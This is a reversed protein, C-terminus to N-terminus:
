SAPEGHPVEARQDRLQLGADQEPAGAGGRDVRSGQDDHRAISSSVTGCEECPDGLHIGTTVVASCPAAPHRAPSSPVPTPADAALRKEVESLPVVGCTCRGGGWSSRASCRETHDQSRMLSRLLVASEALAAASQEMEEAAKSLRAVDAHIDGAALQSQRIRMVTAVADGIPGWDWSPAAMTVGSSKEFREIMEATRKNERQLDAIKRELEYKAQADGAIEPGYKLAELEAKVRDHASPTVYNKAMNRILSVAFMVGIPAPKQRPAKRLTHLRFEGKDGHPKKVVIGWAEPVILENIIKADSIALWWYTAYKGVGEVKSPDRIERKVDERSIKFEYLHAEYKKSAWVGLALADATRDRMLGPKDGIEEFVLWGDGEHRKRVLEIM